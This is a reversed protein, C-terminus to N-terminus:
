RAPGRERSIGYDHRWDRPEAAAPPVPPPVPSLIDGETEGEAVTPVERTMPQPEQSQRPVPEGLDIRIMGPAIETETLRNRQAHDPASPRYPDVAGGDERRLREGKWVRPQPLSYFGTM